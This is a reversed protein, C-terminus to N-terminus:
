VPGPMLVTMAGRASTFIEQRRTGFCSGFRIWFSTRSNTFCRLGSTFISISFWIHGYLAGVAPGSASAILSAIFNENPRSGTNTRSPPEMPAPALHPLPSTDNM